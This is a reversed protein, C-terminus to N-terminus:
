AIDRKISCSKMYAEVFEIIENENPNAVSEMAQKTISLTTQLMQVGVFSDKLIGRIEHTSCWNNVTGRVLKENLTNVVTLKKM